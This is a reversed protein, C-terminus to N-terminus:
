CNLLDVLLSMCLMYCHRIELQIDALRQYKVLRLFEEKTLLDNAKVVERKDRREYRNTHLHEVEYCYKINNGDAIEGYKAYHILRRLTRCAIKLAVM